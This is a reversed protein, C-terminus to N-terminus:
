PVALTRVPRLRSMIKIANFGHFRLVSQRCHSDSFVLEVEGYTSSWQGSRETVRDEVTDSGTDAVADEM